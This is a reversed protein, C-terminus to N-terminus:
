AMLKNTVHQYADSNQLRRSLIKYQVFTPCLTNNQCTNLFKIDFDLKRMRYDIKQYRPIIKLVHNDYRCLSLTLCLNLNPFDFVFVSNSICTVYHFHKM